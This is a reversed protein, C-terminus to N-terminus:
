TPDPVCRNVLAGIGEIETRVTQGARLYVPPTRGHGVGAPTGTSIVDGPVLTCVTSLYQVTTVPDFLLDATRGDQVTEGDVACTIRLDAAGEVEDPTVLWPGIPTAHEWTKGQDWQPTRYQWDRMSVDNVVTFGAIAARAEAASARRVARGIVIGLEAEWDVQESERPLWIDDRAGVLAVAFKAFVTPHEPPAHGMEAIHARYNLGLCLVKDPRPVVPAFDVQDVEHVSGAATADAPDVGSALLVGVDPVVLEVVQAGEVRAARTGAATRVTALRM